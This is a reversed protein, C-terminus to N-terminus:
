ISYTETMNNNSHMNATILVKYITWDSYTVAAFACTFSIVKFLKAHRKISVTIFVISALKILVTICVITSECTLERSYGM